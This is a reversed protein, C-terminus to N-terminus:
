LSDESSSSFCCCLAAKKKKNKKKLKKRNLNIIAQDMLWSTGPSDADENMLSNAEPVLMDDTINGLINELTESIQVFEPRDAPNEAWCATILSGLNRPINDVNPRMNQISSLFCFVTVGNPGPCEGDNVLVTVVHKTWDIIFITFPTTAEYPCVKASAYAVM